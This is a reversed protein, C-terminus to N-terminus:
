TQNGYFLNSYVGVSNVSVIALHYKRVAHITGSKADNIRKDISKSPGRNRGLSVRRLDNYLLETLKENEFVYSPDGGRYKGWVALLDFITPKIILSNDLLTKAIRVIYQSSFKLPSALEKTQPLKEAQTSKVIINMLEKSRGSITVEEYPKPEYTKNKIQTLVDIPSLIIKEPM